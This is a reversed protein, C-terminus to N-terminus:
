ETDENIDYRHSNLIRLAEEDSKKRLEMMEIYEEYREEIEKNFNNLEAARKGFLKKMEDNYKDGLLIQMVKIMCLKIDEIDGRAYLLGDKIEQVDKVLDLREFVGWDCSM